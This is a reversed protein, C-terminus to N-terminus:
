CLLDINKVILVVRLMGLRVKHMRKEKKRPSGPSGCIRAEPPGRRPCKPVKEKCKRVLRFAFVWGFSGFCFGFFGLIFLFNRNSLQVFGVPHPGSAPPHEDSSPPYRPIM